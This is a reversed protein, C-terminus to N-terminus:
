VATYAPIGDRVIPQVLEGSIKVKLYTDGKTASFDRSKFKVVLNVVIPASSPDVAYVVVVPVAHNNYFGGSNNMYQEFTQYDEQGLEIDCKGSYAGRGIGVPLNHRGTIVEDAKEDSYNISEALVPVQGDPFTIKISEYDYVVGNIM